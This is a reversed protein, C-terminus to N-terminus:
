DKEKGISIFKGYRDFTLETKDDLTVIIEKKYNQFLTMVKKDKYNQGLYDKLDVPLTEIISQPIVTGQGDIEKWDGDRYFDTEFGNSLELNYSYDFTNRSFFTIFAGSFHQNLFSTVNEPLPVPQAKLDFFTSIFFLLVIAFSKLLTKM